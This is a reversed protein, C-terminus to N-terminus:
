SIAMWPTGHPGTPTVTQLRHSSLFEPCQVRHVTSDAGVEWTISRAKRPRHFLPCGLSRFRSSQDLLLATIGGIKNADADDPLTIHVDIPLRGSKQLYFLVYELNIFDSKRNLVVRTWLQPSGSPHKPRCWFVSLQNTTSTVHIIHKRFFFFFFVFNLSLIESNYLHAMTKFLLLIQITIRFRICSTIGFAYKLIRNSNSYRICLRHMKCVWGFTIMCPPPLCNNM